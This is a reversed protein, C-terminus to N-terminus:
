LYDQREVDRATLRGPMNGPLQQLKLTMSQMATQQTRLSMEMALAATHSQASHMIGPGIALAMTVAMAIDIAVVLM